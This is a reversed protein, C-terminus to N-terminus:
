FIIYLTPLVPLSIFSDTTNIHTNGLQKLSTVICQGSPMQQNILCTQKHEVLMIFVNSIGYKKMNINM